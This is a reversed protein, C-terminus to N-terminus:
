AGTKTPIQNEQTVRPPLIATPSPTLTDTPIPTASPVPTISPTATITPTTSPTLTITPTSTITPTASPTPTDSPTPTITPTDSPTPTDTPTPSPGPTDSPTLQEILAGVDIDSTPQPTPSLEATPAFGPGSSVDIGDESFILDVLQGRGGFSRQPQGNWVIVLAEANSATISVVEVGSFDFQEGPAAIGTYLPTGDASVNLWSRQSMEVTVLVGSGSYTQQIGGILPTAAAPTFTPVSATASVAATAPLQGLIEGELAVSPPVINPQSILQSVVLVIVAIAAVGVLGLVFTALAGRGGRRRKRAAELMDVPVPPLAPDTDTATQKARLTRESERKRGRKPKSSSKPAKDAGRKRGRIPPKAAEILAAEYFQITREEDLGLFRSYNRMFGRIQVSSVEAINFDGLEFSELIRRRIHLMREADELTLEKAERTQRLYQGLSQADM